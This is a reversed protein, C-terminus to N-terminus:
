ASVELTEFSRGEDSPHWDRVVYHAGDAKIVRHPLHEPLCALDPANYDAALNDAAKRTKRTAIVTVKM